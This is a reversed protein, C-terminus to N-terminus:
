QLENKGLNTIGFIAKWSCLDYRVHATFIVCSYLYKYKYKKMFM